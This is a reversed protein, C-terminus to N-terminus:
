NVSAPDDGLASQLSARVSAVLPAVEAINGTLDLLFLVHIADALDKQGARRATLQANTLAEYVSPLDPERADEFAV